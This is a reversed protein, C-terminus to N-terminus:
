KKGSGPILGQQIEQTTYGAKRGQEIIIWVPIRKAEAGTMYQGWTVPPHVVGNKDTYPTRATRALSLAESALPEYQRQTLGHYIQKERTGQVTSAARAKAATAATRARSAATNANQQQIQTETGRYGILSNALNQQNVLGELQTLYQQALKPQSARAALINQVLAAAQQAGQGL